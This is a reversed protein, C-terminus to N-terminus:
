RYPSRANYCCQNIGKGNTNNLHCYYILLNMAVEVNKQVTHIEAATSYMNM